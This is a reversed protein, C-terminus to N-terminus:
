LDAQSKAEPQRSHGPKIELRKRLEFPITVQGKPNVVTRRMM